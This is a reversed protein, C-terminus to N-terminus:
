GTTITMDFIPPNPVCHTGFTCRTQAALISARADSSRGALVDDLGKGAEVLWALHVNSNSELNALGDSGPKQDNATHM